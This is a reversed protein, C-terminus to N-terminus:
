RFPPGTFWGVVVYRKGKTIPKVKHSLFSSFIVV